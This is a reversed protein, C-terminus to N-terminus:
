SVQVIICVDVITVVRDVFDVKGFLTHPVFAIEGVLCLVSRIEDVDHTNGNKSYSGWNQISVRASAKRLVIGPYRRSIIRSWEVLVKEQDHVNSDPGLVSVERITRM